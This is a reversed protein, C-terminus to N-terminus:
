LNFTRLYRSTFTAIKKQTSVEDMWGGAFFSIIIKGIKYFPFAHFCAGIYKTM